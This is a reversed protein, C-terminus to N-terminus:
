PSRIEVSLQAEHLRHHHWPQHEQPPRPRVLLLKCLRAQQHRLLHHLNPLSRLHPFLRPPQLRHLCARPLRTHPMRLRRPLTHRFIPSIVDQIPLPTGPQHIHSPQQIHYTLTLLLSPTTIISLNPHQLSPVVNILFASASM